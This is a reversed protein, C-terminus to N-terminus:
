AKEPALSWRPSRSGGRVVEEFALDVAQRLYAILRDDSHTSAAATPPRPSQM